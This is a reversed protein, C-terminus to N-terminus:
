HKKGKRLYITYRHGRTVKSPGLEFFMDWLISEKGTIIKFARNLRRQKEREITVM